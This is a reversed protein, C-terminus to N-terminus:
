DLKEIGAKAWTANSNMRTALIRMNKEISDRSREKHWLHLVPLAFRGDKCRVGSNLMRIVLESDEYGWGVFSEDFGNVRYFDERWLGLNCTKVGKWRHPTVKRFIGDPIHILPSIRNITGDIRAKMFKRLSWSFIPMTQLLITSSFSQSLLIRNGSVFWGREALCTHTAIFDPFVVCDGDLFLLYDGKSVAVAQNRAAAARFGKDEQWVYRLDVPFNPALRNVLNVTESTSGDDAVV